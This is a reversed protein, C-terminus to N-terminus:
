KSFICFIKFIDFKRYKILAKPFTVYKVIAAAINGHCKKYYLIKSRQLQELIWYNIGDQKKGSAGVYHIISTNPYWIVKYGFKNLRFCMETEEYYLFFDEDFGGINDFISKKLFMDAGM